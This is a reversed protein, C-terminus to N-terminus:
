KIGERKTSLATVIEKIAHNRAFVMDEMQQSHGTPPKKMKMSKIEEIIDTLDQYRVQHIFEFMNGKVGEPIRIFECHKSNWVSTFKESFREEIEKKTTHPM